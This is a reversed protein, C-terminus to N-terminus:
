NQPNYIEPILCDSLEVLTHDREGSYDSRLMPSRLLPETNQRIALTMTIRTLGEGPQDILVTGGHNGAASRILVMGLGIGFRSDELTPQRLYRCFLTPLIERAIGSGCDTVSVRLMRGRRTMEAQISGGKSAFKSANSLMNLVARELQQADALCYISEKPGKYLLERGSRSLAERAKGFVEEMVSCINVTEQRSGACFSVADAMNGLIRLMQYLSRNLSAADGGQVTPFLREASMMVNALPERLEQAALALSTLERQPPEQELVFIDLDDVRSVAAGHPTGSLTLTLYLCGGEFAGYEEAGTLLLERVPTGPTILLGQAAPNARLVTQERACFAPVVMMDLMGLIDRQQEM